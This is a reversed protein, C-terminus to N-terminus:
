KFTSLGGATIADSVKDSVRHYKIPVCRIYEHALYQVLIEYFQQVSRAFSTPSTDHTIKKSRDEDKREDCPHYAVEDGPLLPTGKSGAVRIVTIEKLSGIM